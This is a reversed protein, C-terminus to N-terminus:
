EVEKGDRALSMSCRLPAIWLTGDAKTLGTLVQGSLLLFTTSKV